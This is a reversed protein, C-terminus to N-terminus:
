PMDRCRAGRQDGSADLRHRGARIQTHLQVDRAALAMFELACIVEHLKGAVGVRAVCLRREWDHGRTLFEGKGGHYLEMATAYSGHVYADYGRNLHRKLTRYEDGDQAADNALRVHAKMLEDRSVYFQKEQATFEETTRAIPAFFDDVFKKQASTMQGRHVGEGVATIESAFDSVIRLLSASETVFGADALVLAARIGSVMRVGKAVQLALPSPERFEWHFDGDPHRVRVPPLLPKALAHLWGDLEDILGRTTSFLDM